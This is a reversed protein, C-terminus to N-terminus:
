ILGILKMTTLTNDPNNIKYIALQKIYSKEIEQIGLTKFINELKNDVLSLPIHLINDLKYQNINIFDDFFETHIFKFYIIEKVLQDKFKKPLVVDKIFEPIKSTYIFIMKKSLFSISAIAFVDPYKKELIEAAKIFRAETFGRSKMYGIEYGNIESYPSENVLILGQKNQIKNSIGILKNLQYEVKATILFDFKKLM